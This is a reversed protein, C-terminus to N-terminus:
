LDSGTRFCTAIEIGGWLSSQLWIERELVKRNAQLLCLWSSLM